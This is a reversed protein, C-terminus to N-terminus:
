LWYIEINPSDACSFCQAPEREILRIVIPEELLQLVSHVWAPSVNVYLFTFTLLYSVVGKNSKAKFYVFSHSIMDAQGPLGEHKQRRWIGNGCTDNSMQKRLTWQKQSFPQDSEDSKPRLTLSLIPLTWVWNKLWHIQWILDHFYPPFSFYIIQHHHSLNTLRFIHWYVKM